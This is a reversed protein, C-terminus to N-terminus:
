TIKKSETYGRQCLRKKVRKSMKFVPNQNRVTSYSNFFVRTLNLKCIM